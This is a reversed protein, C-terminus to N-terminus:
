KTSPVPPQNMVPIIGLAGDTVIDAIILIAIVSLFGIIGIKILKKADAKKRLKEQEHIAWVINNIIKNFADKGKQIFTVAGFYTASAAIDVDAHSSLMIVEINPDYSKLENLVAIGNQAEEDDSDELFYDMVVLFISNKPFKSTKIYDLLDKGNTFAKTKKFSRTNKFQEQLVKLQLENDDVLFIFVECNTHKVGKNGPEAPVKGKTRNTISVNYNKLQEEEKAKNDIKKEVKSTKTEKEVTQTVPKKIEPQATVEKNEITSQTETKQSTQQQLKEIEQLKALAEQKAKELDDQLVQNDSM